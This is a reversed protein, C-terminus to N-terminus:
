VFCLVRMFMFSYVFTYDGLTFYLPFLEWSTKWTLIACALILLYLSCGSQLYESLSGHLLVLLESFLLFMYM